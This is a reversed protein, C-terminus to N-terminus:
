HDMCRHQCTPSKGVYQPRFFDQVLQYTTLGMIELTEVMRKTTCSKAVMWRLHHNKRQWLWRNYEDVKVYGVMFWGNHKVM